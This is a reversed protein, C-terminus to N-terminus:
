FIYFYIIQRSTEIHLQLYRIQFLKKGIRLTSKTATFLKREFHLCHIIIVSLIVHSFIVFWKSPQQTCLGWTWRTSSSKKLVTYLCFSLLFIVDFYSTYVFVTRWFTKVQCVYNVWFSKCAYDLIWTCIVRIELSFLVKIVSIFMSLQKVLFKTIVSLIVTM